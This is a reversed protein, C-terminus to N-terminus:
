DTVKNKGRRRIDRCCNAQEETLGEKTLLDTFREMSCTIIYDVNRCIPFNCIILLNVFSGQYELIGPMEKM